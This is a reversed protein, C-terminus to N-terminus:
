RRSPAKDEYGDTQRKTMKTDILNYSSLEGLELLKNGMLLKRVELIAGKTGFVYTDLAM